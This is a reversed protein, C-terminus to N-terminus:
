VTSRRVQQVYDHLQSRRKELLQRTGLDLGAPAVAREAFDHPVSLLSIVGRTDTWATRKLSTGHKELTDLYHLLATVVEEAPLPEPDHPILSVAQRALVPWEALLHPVHLYYQAADSRREDLTDGAAEISEQMDRITASVEHFIAESLRQHNEKHTQLLLTHSEDLTRLEAEAQDISHQLEFQQKRTTSALKKHEKGAVDLEQKVQEIQQAIQVVHAATSAEAPTSIAINASTQAQRYRMELEQLHSKLESLKHEDELLALDLQEQQQRHRAISSKITAIQQDLSELAASSKEVLERLTTSSNETVLVPM